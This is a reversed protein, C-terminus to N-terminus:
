TSAMSHRQNNTVTYTTNKYLALQRVDGQQYTVKHSFNDFIKQMNCRWDNQCAILWNNVHM